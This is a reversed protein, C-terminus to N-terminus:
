NITLGIAFGLYPKGHYIWYEKNKDQLFDFGLIIGFGFDEVGLFAGAGTELILGDYESEIANGTVWPNMATSGIGLFAGTDFGFHVRKVQLVPMPTKFSKISFYDRRYGIYVAANINSNLQNPMEEQGFRYKFLITLLDLDMSSKRLTGYSPVDKAEIEKLLIPVPRSTDATKQGDKNILPYLTITDQNQTLYVKMPQEGPMKYSFNGDSFDHRTANEITSCSAALTALGILLNRHKLGPLYAKM